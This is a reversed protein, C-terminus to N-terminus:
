DQAKNMGSDNLLEADPITKGSIKEQREQRLRNFVPFSLGHSGACASSAEASAVDPSSIGTSEDTPKM